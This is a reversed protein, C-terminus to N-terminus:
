IEKQCLGALTWVITGYSIFLTHFTQIIVTGLKSQRVNLYQAQLAVSTYPMPELGLHFHNNTLMQLTSLM